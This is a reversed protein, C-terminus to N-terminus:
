PFAWRSPYRDARGAEARPLHSARRAWTAEDPGPCPSPLAPPHRAYKGLAREQGCRKARVKWGWETGVALDKGSAYQTIRSRNSEHEDPELQAWEAGLGSSLDATGVTKDLPAFVQDWLLHRWFSVYFFAEGRM